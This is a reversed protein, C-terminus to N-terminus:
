LLFICFKGVKMNHGDKGLNSPIRTEQAGELDYMYFYNCQNSGAVFKSGDCLFKAYKVPFKPFKVSHILHNHTGDVQLLFLTFM